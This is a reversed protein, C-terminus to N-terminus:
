PLETTRKKHEQQVPVPELNGTPAVTLADRDPSQNITEVTHEQRCSTRQSSRHRHDELPYAPVTFPHISLHVHLKCTM